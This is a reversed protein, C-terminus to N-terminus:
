EKYLKLCDYIDSERKLNEDCMKSLSCEPGILSNSLGIIRASAKYLNAKRPILPKFWSLTEIFARLESAIKRLESSAEDYTKDHQQKLSIPNEYKNAYMILIFSVKSKIKKYEQLPTLWIEKIIESFVFVVVGSVVTGFITLFISVIAVGKIEM